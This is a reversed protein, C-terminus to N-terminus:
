YPPMDNEPDELLWNDAQGCASSLAPYLLDKTKDIGLHFTSKKVFEGLQPFTEFLEDTGATDPMGSDTSLGDINNEAKYAYALNELDQDLQRQLYSDFEHHENEYAWNALKERTDYDNLFNKFEDEFTSESQALKTMVKTLTDAENTLGLADFNNALENLAAIIKRKNM